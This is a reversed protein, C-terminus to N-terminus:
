CVREGRADRWFRKSLMLFILSLGGGGGEFYGETYRVGQMMRTAKSDYFFFVDKGGGAVCLAGNEKRMVCTCQVKPVKEFIDMFFGLKVSKVRFSVVVHGGKRKKTM